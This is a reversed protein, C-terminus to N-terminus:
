LSLKSVRYKNLDVPPHNSCRSHSGPMRSPHEQTVPAVLWLLPVGFHACCAQQPLNAIILGIYIESAGPSSGNVVADGNSLTCSARDSTRDVKGSFSPM